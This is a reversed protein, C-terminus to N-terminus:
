ASTTNVSEGDILTTRNMLPEPTVGQYSLGTGQVPAADTRAQSAGTYDAIASEGGRLPTFAAYNGTTSDPNYGGGNAEDYLGFKQVEPQIAKAIEASGLIGPLAYNYNIRHLQLMTAIQYGLERVNDNHQVIGTYNITREQLETTNIVRQIPLEGIDTPFVNTYFACDIIRDPIMTPDFQIAIFSMSWSSMLWPPVEGIGAAMSLASANTDPHQMDFIWRRHLNWCLNGTVETFQISPSVQGRSSRGPVKMTQGDHGVPTEQPDITYNFAIGNISKAHTEVLSKLMTQGLTWSDWMAPTNLVVIVAPNFVLPTAADLQTFKIGSGVQGGQLMNAVASRNSVGLGTVNALLADTMADTSIARM